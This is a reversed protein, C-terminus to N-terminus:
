AASLGGFGGLVHWSQRCLPSGRRANLLREQYKEGIGHIRVVYGIM